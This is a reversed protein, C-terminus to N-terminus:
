FYASEYSTFFISYKAYMRIDWRERGLNCDFEVVATILKRSMLRQGLKKFSTESVSYLGRFM